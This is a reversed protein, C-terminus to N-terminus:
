ARCRINGARNRERPLGPQAVAILTSVAVNLKASPLVPVEGVGDIAYHLGLVDGAFSEMRGDPGDALLTANVARLARIAAM